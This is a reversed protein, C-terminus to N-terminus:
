VPETENSLAQLEHGFGWREALKDAEGERRESQDPAVHENLWAHALEHAIVGKAADISLRRMLGTYFTITHKGPDSATKGQNSRYESFTYRTLGVLGAAAARKRFLVKRVTMMPPTGRPIRSIVDMLLGIFTPEQALLTAKPTLPTSIKVNGPSEL